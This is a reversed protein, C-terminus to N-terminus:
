RFAFLRFFYYFSYKTYSLISDRTDRLEYSWSFAITFYRLLDLPSRVFLCFCLLRVIRLVKNKLTNAAINPRLTRITSASDLFYSSCKM